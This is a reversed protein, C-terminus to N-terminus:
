TKKKIDTPELSTALDIDDIKKGTIAKRVCGGVFRVKTDEGMKNLYSFIIKAEKLNELSKINEESGFAKFLFRDLKIITNKIKNLM